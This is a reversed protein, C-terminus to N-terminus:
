DTVTQCYHILNWSWRWAPVRLTAGCPLRLYMSCQMWSTMIGQLALGCQMWRHNYTCQKCLYQFRALGSPLIARWSNGMCCQILAYPTCCQVCSLCPFCLACWGQLNKGLRKMRLYLRLDDWWSAGEALRSDLVCLAIATPGQQWINIINDVPASHQDWHRLSSLHEGDCGHNNALEPYQLLSQKTAYM